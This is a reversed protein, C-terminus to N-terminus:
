PACTNCRRRLSRKLTRRAAETGPLNGGNIKQLERLKDLANIYGVYGEDRKHVEKSVDKDAIVYPTNDQQVAPVFREAGSKDPGVSRQFGQSDVLAKQARLQDAAEKDG